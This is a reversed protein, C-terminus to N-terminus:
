RSRARLLSRACSGFHPDGGPRGPTDGVRHSGGVQDADNGSARRQELCVVQVCGVSGLEDRGWRSRLRGPLVDVGPELSSASPQVTRARCPGRTRLGCAGPRGSATGSGQRAPCRGGLRRPWGFRQHPEALLASPGRQPPALHPTATGPGAPPRDGRTPTDPSAREGENGTLPCAQRYWKRPSRLHISFRRVMPRKRQSM